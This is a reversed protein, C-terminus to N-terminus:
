GHPHNLTLDKTKKKFLKYLLSIKELENGINNFASLRFYFACLNYTTFNKQVKQLRRTNLLATSINYERQDTCLKGYM